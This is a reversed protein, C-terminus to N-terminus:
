RLDAPTRCIKALSDPEASMPLFYSSRIRVVGHRRWQMSVPPAADEPGLPKGFTVPLVLQRGDDNPLVFPAESVMTVMAASALVPEDVTEESLIQRPAAAPGDTGSLPKDAIDAFVVDSGHPTKAAQMGQNPAAIQSPAQPETFTPQTHDETDALLAPPLGALPVAARSQAAQSLAAQSPPAQMAIAVPRTAAPNPPAAAAIVGRGDPVTQM